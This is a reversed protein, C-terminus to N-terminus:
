SRQFHVYLKNPHSIFHDRFNKVAEYFSLGSRMYYRVVNMKMAEFCKNFDSKCAAASFGFDFAKCECHKSGPVDGVAKNLEACRYGSTIYISRSIGTIFLLDSIFRYCRYLEIVRNVYHEPIENRIGLRIAVQSQELQTEFDELSLFQM